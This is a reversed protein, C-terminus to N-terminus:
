MRRAVPRLGLEWETAMLADRLQEVTQLYGKSMLLTFSNRYSDWSDEEGERPAADQARWL